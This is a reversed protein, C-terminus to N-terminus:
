DSTSAEVPAVYEMSLFLGSLHLFDQETAASLIPRTETVLPDYRERIQQWLADSRVLHVLINTDLLYLTAM